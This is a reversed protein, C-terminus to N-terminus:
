YNTQYQVWFLLTCYWDPPQKKKVHWRLMCDWAPKGTWKSPSSLL